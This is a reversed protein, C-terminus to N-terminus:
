AAEKRAVIASIDTANLILFREDDVYVFDGVSPAFTVVDGVQVEYPKGKGCYKCVQSDGLQEVRGMVVPHRLYAEPRQILADDDQEPEPAPRILVRPGKVRIMM